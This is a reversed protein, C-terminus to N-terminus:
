KQQCGYGLNSMWPEFSDIVDFHMNHRGKVKAGVETPTGNRTGNRGIGAKFCMM